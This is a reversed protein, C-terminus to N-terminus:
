LQDFLPFALFIFDLYELSLVTLPDLFLENHNTPKQFHIDLLLFAELNPVLSAVSHPNTILLRLLEKRSGIFIVNIQSPMCRGRMYNKLLM